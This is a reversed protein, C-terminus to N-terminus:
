PTESGLSASLAPVGAGVDGATPKVAAVAAAAAADTAIQTATRDSLASLGAEDALWQEEDATQVTGPVYRGLRRDIGALSTLVRNVYSSPLYGTTKVARAGINYAGIAYRMADRGHSSFEGLLSHLLRATGDLNETANRPNVGLDHATEPMLQGLGRAGSYSVSEPRWSSEVTVVAMVLHPDLHLRQADILLTHALTRSQAQSLTPNVSRLYAAYRAEQSTPQDALAQVPALAAVATLALLAGLARRQRPM